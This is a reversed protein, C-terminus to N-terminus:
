LKVERRRLLLWQIGLDVALLAGAIAAVHWSPAITAMGLVFLSVGAIELGGTSGMWGVLGGFMGFLVIMLVLGVWKWKVFASGLLSGACSSIVLGLVIMPLCSLGAASIESPILAWVLASVASTAAILLVRHFQFGWFVNRRTEGSAVLLSFYLTQCGPGVVMVCIAAAITLYFPALALFNQMDSGGNSWVPDGTVVGMVLFVAVVILEVEMNEWTFRTWFRLNRRM